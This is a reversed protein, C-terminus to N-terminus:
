FFIPGSGPTIPAPLPTETRVTAGAISGEPTTSEIQARAKRQERLKVFEKDAEVADDKETPLGAMRDALYEDIKKKRDKIAQVSLYDPDTAPLLGRRDLDAKKAVGEQTEADMRDDYFKRIVAERRDEKAKAKGVYEGQGGFIRDQTRQDFLDAEDNIGEKRYKELEGLHLKKEKVQNDMRSIQDDMQGMEEKFLKLQDQWIKEGKQKISKLADRIPGWFAAIIDGIGPMSTYAGYIADNMDQKDKMFEKYKEFSKAFETESEKRNQKRRRLAMIENEANEIAAGVLWGMERARYLQGMQDRAKTGWDDKQETCLNKYGKCGDLKLWAKYPGNMYDKYDQNDELQKKLDMDHAYDGTYSLGLIKEPTPYDHERPPKPVQVPYYMREFASQPNDKMRTFTRHQTYQHYPGGIDAPDVVVRNPLFSGPNAPDPIDTKFVYRGQSPGTPIVGGLSPDLIFVGPNEPDEKIAEVFKNPDAPAAPDPMTLTVFKHTTKTIIAPNTPDREIITKIAVGPKITYEMYMKMNAADDTANQPPITYSPPTPLAPIQPSLGMTDGPIYRNMFEQPDTGYLEYKKLEQMRFRIYDIFSEALPYTAGV